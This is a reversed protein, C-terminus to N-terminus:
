VHARGIQIDAVLQAQVYPPELKWLEKGRNGDNAQFFLIGDLVTLYEPWASGVGPNIDTVRWTSAADYPPDSRWIELGYQGDDARFFVTSDIATMYRPTSSAVGEHLDGVMVPEPDPPTSTQAQINTAPSLINLTFLLIALVMSLTHGNIPQTCCVRSKQSKFNQM